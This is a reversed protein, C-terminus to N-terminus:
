ADIAKPTPLLTGDLPVSRPTQPCMEYGWAVVRDLEHGMRAAVAEHEERRQGARFPRDPQKANRSFAPSALARAAHDGDLDLDLFKGVADLTQAPAALFVECDLSRVRSPGLRELNRRFEAMQMHWVLAGIQLDTLAKLLAAPWSAQAHGDRLLLGFMERAYAWGDDGMKALSILFSRCDSYLFLHRGTTLAAAEAILANAAPAPKITVAANPELSRGLLRLGIKPLQALAPHQTFAGDRKARAIEVLLQPECLSLNRAPANLAKALLTSCCFGTHRLFHLNKSVPRAALREALAFLHVKVHPAAGRNWRGDLFVQSALTDRQTEIFSMLGSRPDFGEPFWRADSIITSIPIGRTKVWSENM